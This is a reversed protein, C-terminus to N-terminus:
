LYLRCEGRYIGVALGYTEGFDVVVELPSV